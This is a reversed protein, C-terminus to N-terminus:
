RTDTSPLEVGSVRVHILGRSLPALRRFADDSLDILRSGYCQCWDSLRVVVSRGNATVTILSGRWSGHRLRPGAAAILGNAAYWSATGSLPAPAAPPPPEPAVAVKGLSAPHLSAGALAGAPAEKPTRVGPHVSASPSAPVMLSLAAVM